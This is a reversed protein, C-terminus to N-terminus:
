LNLYIAQLQYKIMMRSVFAQENNFHVPKQKLNSVM